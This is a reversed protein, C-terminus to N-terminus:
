SSAPNIENALKLLTRLNKEVKGNQWLATHVFLLQAGAKVCAKINKENVGGDLALKFNLKNTKKISLIKRVDKLRKAQFKQGSFGAKVMMLMVLDAQTLFKLPIAEPKTNLDLALGLKLNYKKILKNHKFFDVLEEFDTVAELQVMVTATKGFNINNKLNNKLYDLPKLVMLHLFLNFESLGPLAKLKALSFTKNGAFEGDLFDIHVDEILGQLKQLKLSAEKIDKTLITPIIKTM